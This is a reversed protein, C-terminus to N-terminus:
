RVMFDRRARSRECRRADANRKSAVREAAMTPPEKAAWPTRPCSLVLSLLSAVARLTTFEVVSGLGNTFIAFATPGATTLMLVWVKGLLVPFLPPRRRM